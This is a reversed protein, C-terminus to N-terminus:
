VHVTDQPERQSNARWDGSADLIDDPIPYNATARVHYRGGFSM